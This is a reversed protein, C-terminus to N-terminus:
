ILCGIQSGIAALTSVLSDGDEAVLFLTPGDRTTAYWKGAGADTCPAPFGPATGGACALDNLTAADIGRGSGDFAVVYTRVGQALLGQATAIAENGCTDNGDSLLLAYQSRIPDHVRALETKATDIAPGIPTSVCLLTTEPDLATDITTGAANSPAVIVEGGQCHPNTASMGMLQQALTVCVNGGPDRPFLELGFRVSGELMTSVQEVAEIALYWKTERHGDPTNAPATGDPRKSMSLTRDLVILMDPPECSTSASGDVRPSGGDTDSAISRSSPEEGSCGSCGMALAFAAVSAAALSARM